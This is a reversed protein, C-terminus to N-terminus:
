GARRQAAALLPPPAFNRFWDNLSWITRAGLPHRSAKLDDMAASIGDALAHHTKYVVAFRDEDFGDVLVLEWPPRSRDLPPALVAGIAMQGNAKENALFSTDLSTLRDM